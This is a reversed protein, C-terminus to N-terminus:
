FHENADDHKSYKINNFREIFFSPTEHFLKGGNKKTKNKSIKRKTQKRKFYIIENMNNQLM